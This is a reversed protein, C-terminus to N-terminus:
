FAAEVQVWYLSSSLKELDFSLAGNLFMCASSSAVQSNHECLKGRTQPHKLDSGVRNGQSEKYSRSCLESAM